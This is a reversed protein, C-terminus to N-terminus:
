EIERDRVTKKERVRKRESQRTMRVRIQESREGGSKKRLEEFEGDVGERKRDRKKRRM